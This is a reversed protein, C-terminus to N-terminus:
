NKNSGLSHFFPFSLIYSESYNLGQQQVSALAVFCLAFKPFAKSFLVFFMISQCYHFDFSFIDLLWWHLNLSFKYIILLKSTYDTHKRIKSLAAIQKDESFINKIFTIQFVIAEWIRLLRWGVEQTNLLAATGFKRGMVKKNKRIVERRVAKM